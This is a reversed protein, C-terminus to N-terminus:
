QKDALINNDMLVCSKFNRGTCIDSVDQVKRFPGEKKRVICFHCNRICGRSTFGLYHDCEPYLDYDPRTAEIEPPLEKKLDYGSGGINIEADPYYFRLGDSKHGNKRFIISSYVIDPDVISFGVEYGLQKYYASVKMLALNPITSDVDILLVKTM